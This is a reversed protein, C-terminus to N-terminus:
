TTKHFIITHTTFGDGAGATFFFIIDGINICNVLFKTFVIKVSLCVRLNNIKEDIQMKLAEQPYYFLYIVPSELLPTEMKCPPHKIIDSIRQEVHISFNLHLLMM